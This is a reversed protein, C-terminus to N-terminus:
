TSEVEPVVTENEEPPAEAVNPVEKETENPSDEGTEIEVSETGAVELVEKEIEDPPAEESEIQVSEADAFEPVVERIGKIARELVEPREGWKRRILDLFLVGNEAPEGNEGWKRNRIAEVIREKGDGGAAEVIGGFEEAGEALLAMVASEGCKPARLLDAGAAVLKRVAAWEKMRVAELLPTESCDSEVNLIREGDSASLGAIHELLVDLVGWDKELISLTLLDHKTHSTRPNFVSEIPLSQAVALLSTLARSKGNIVAYQTHTPFPYERQSTPGIVRSLITHGGDRHRPDGSLLVSLSPYQSLLFSDDSDILDRLSLFPDSM